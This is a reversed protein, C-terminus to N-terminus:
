PAQGMHIVPSVAWRALHPVQTATSVPTQPDREIPSKSAGAPPGGLPHSLGSPVRDPEQCGVLPFFIFLGYPSPVHLLMALRPLHPLFLGMSALVNVEPVRPNLPMYLNSHTVLLLLIHLSLYEVSFTVPESLPQLEQPFPEASRKHWFWKLVLTLSFLFHGNM